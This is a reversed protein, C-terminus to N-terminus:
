SWSWVDAARILWGKLFRKQPPNRNAIGAYYLSQIKSLQELTFDEPVENAARLTNPGVRGDPALGLVLQLMAKAVLPGCNVAVDFVKWRIRKSLVSGIGLADYYKEKYIDTAQELTINKIDLDPFARKSIGYKTEGGADLPDNSYGGEHRLTREIIEKEDQTM